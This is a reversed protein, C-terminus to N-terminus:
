GRLGDGAMGGAALRGELVATKQRLGLLTVALLTAAATAIMLATRMDPHLSDRGAGITFPHISRWWQVSFHVIPINCFALVGFVAATRGRVEPNAISRRLILYGIYMLWTIFTLTLRPEWTWWQGWVARAWISGSVLTATTFLVGVEAATEGLWDWHAARRLLYALGAVLVLFFCLYANWATAVHIYFLRQVDGMFAETPAYMLAAYLLAVSGPVFLGATVKLWPM